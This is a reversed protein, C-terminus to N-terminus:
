EVEKSITQIEGVYNSVFVQYDAAPARIQNRATSPDTLFLRLKVGTPLAM